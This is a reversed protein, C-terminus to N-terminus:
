CDSPNDPWDCGLAVAQAASIAFACDPQGLVVHLMTARVLADDIRAPVHNGALKHACRDAVDALESVTVRWWPVAAVHVTRGDTGNTAYWYNM